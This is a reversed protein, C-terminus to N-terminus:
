ALITEALLTAVTGPMEQPLAHGAGPIEALRLARPLAAFLRRANGPPTVVDELGTAVLTPVSLRAADALLDGAGLARVAQAYGGPRVTAMARRVGALVAPRNAADHVLRAARKAVFAEPGLAELDDIRSQVSAPLPGEAVGYGLAPSLLALGAIRSPNTAAFRAAFLCGLSHGVLLIRRHGMADLLRALAAAYDGPTPAQPAVPESEGYGPADWAIVGRSPPLAEILPAWSSANSGIGHLLVVPLGPGTGPRHLLAIGAARQTEVQSATECM